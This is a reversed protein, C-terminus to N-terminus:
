GNGLAARVTAVAAKAGATSGGLLGADLWPNGPSADDIAAVEQQFWNRHVYGGRPFWAWLGNNQECRKARLYAFEMGVLFEVRDVTTDREAPTISLDALDDGLKPQLWQTVISSSRQNAGTAVSWFNSENFALLMLCDAAPLKEAYRNPIPAHLLAKALAFRGGDLAGALAWYLCLAAPLNRLDNWMTFPSVLDGGMSIAPLESILRQTAAPSGWRAAFLFSRRLVETRADIAALIASTNKEDPEDTPWESSGVFNRVKTAEAELFEAWEPGFEDSRCFKRAVALATEVTVPHSRDARRVADLKSSLDLLFEDAGKVEIVQGQRHSVIDAALTPLASRTAWYLPYRRTGARLMANRLAEDWEGSWGVVLLGYEDFVRDLLGDIEQEYAALEADTNKIRSDLYDGHLKIITCRAHALPTAGALSHKDTIVTPEIGAERIATELLRDFNTTVLVKVAGDAVLQALARHAKTPRRTEDGPAAEIYGHLLARRDAPTTALTDIIESYSPERNAQQRYWAAWDPEDTVGKLAAVRRILDLTIEWGTPIGASKSLGSGVLVACTGPAHHLAFALSDTPVLGLM